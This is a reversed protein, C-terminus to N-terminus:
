LILDAIDETSNRYSLLIDRVSDSDYWLVLDDVDKCKVIVPGTPSELDLEGGKFRLMTANPPVVWGRKDYRNLALRGTKDNDPIAIVKKFMKLLECKLKSVTSGMTAICPLGISRLSLCDFIGEVLFVLGDYDSYSLEYAQKFNFFMCEKSFFPTPLTIYKRDDPFYGILSVLDGNVGYVPIIFRNNLIFYNNKSYLALNEAKDKYTEDDAVSLFGINMEEALKVQPSDPFYGRASCLLELSDLAYSKKFDNYVSTLNKVMERYTPFVEAQRM